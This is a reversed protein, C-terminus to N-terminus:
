KQLLSSMTWIMKISGNKVLYEVMTELNVIIMMSMRKRKEINGAQYFVGTKNMKQIVRQSYFNIRTLEAINHM